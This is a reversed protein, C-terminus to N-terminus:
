GYKGTHEVIITSRGDTRDYAREYSPFIDRATLLEIVEITKLMSRFAESYDGLHQAQPDLPQDTPVGVRIIVKPTYRGNSYLPLKDLHNVIQGTAELMFPWRPFCSVPVFGAVALGTAIGAQTDEFVPMEIRKDIPVDALTKFMITGDYAVSQGLFLTNSKEGLWTM